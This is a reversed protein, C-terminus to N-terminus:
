GQGFVDLAAAIHSYGPLPPHGAKEYRVVHALGLKQSTPLTRNGTWLLTRLQENEIRLLRENSELILGAQDCWTAVAAWFEELSTWCVLSKPELLTTIQDPTVFAQLGHSVLNQLNELFALVFEYNAHDLLLEEAAALVKEIAATERKAAQYAVERCVTLDATDSVAKRDLGAAALLRGSRSPTRRRWPAPM